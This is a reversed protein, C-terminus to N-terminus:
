RMSRLGAVVIKKSRHGCRVRAAARRAKSQARSVASSGFRRVLRKHSAAIMKWFRLDDGYALHRCRRQVYYARTHHTYGSLAPGANEAFQRRQQEKQQAAAATQSSLRAVRQKKRKAKKRGAVALAKSRDVFKQEFRRGAALAATVKARASGCSVGGSVRNRVNKVAGSGSVRAAAVEAFAAHTALDEREGSSLTRCKQEAAHGAAITEFTNIDLGIPAATSVAPSGVLLVLVLPISIASYEFAKM